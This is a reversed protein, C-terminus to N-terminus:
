LGRVAFTCTSSVSVSSPVCYFSSSAAVPIPSTLGVIPGCGNASCDARWLMTSSTAPISGWPGTSTSSYLWLTEAGNASFYLDTVYPASAQSTATLCQTSTVVGMCSAGSWTAAPAVVVQNGASDMKAMRGNVGDTGFMIPPPAATGQVMQVVVAGTTTTSALRVRIQTGFSAPMLCNWWNYPYGTTQTVTGAANACPVPYWSSGDVTAEYAVTLGATSTTNTGITQYGSTNVAIYDNTNVLTKTTTVTTIGPMSAIVLGQDTAMTVPLSKAMTTSGLLLTAGNVNSLGVKSDTSITVRPAGPVSPGWGWVVPFGGLWNANFKAGAASANSLYVYQEGLISTTLGRRTAPVTPDAGYLLAAQSNGSAALSIGTIAASSALLTANVTFAGQNSAIVVPISQAMTTSGLLLPAGNINSLGVKSDTSLMTRLVSPGSSGWGTAVPLGNLYYLNLRNAAASISNINVNLGMANASLAQLTSAATDSWAGVTLGTSSSGRLRDWASGNFTMVHASVDTLGTTQVAEADFNSGEIQQRDWATTSANYGLQASLTPLMPTTTSMGDAPVVVDYTDATEVRDDDHLAFVDIVATSSVTANTSSVGMGAGMVIYNGPIHLTNAGVFQKDIYLSCAENTMAIKYAHATATTGNNPLSFTYNDLGYISDTDGGNSQLRVLTSTAGDLFVRCQQGPNTSTAAGLDLYGLWLSTSTSQNSWSVSPYVAVAPMTDATRLLTLSGTSTGVSM